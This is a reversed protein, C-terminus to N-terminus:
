AQVYGAGSGNDVDHAGSESWLMAPVNDANDIRSVDCARPLSFNEFPSFDEFPL